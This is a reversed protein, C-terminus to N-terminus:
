GRRIKLMADAIAYAREAIVKPEYWWDTDMDDRARQQLGGALAAAALQDRLTKEERSYVM